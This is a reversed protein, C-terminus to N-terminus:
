KSSSAANPNPDLGNTAIGSEHVHHKQEARLGGQMALCHAWESYAKATREVELRIGGRAERGLTDVLRVEVPVTGRTIEEPIRECGYALIM